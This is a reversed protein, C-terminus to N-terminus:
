ANESAEGLWKARRRESNYKRPPNDPQASCYLASSLSIISTKLGDPTTQYIYFNETDMWASFGPCAPLTIIQRDYSTM